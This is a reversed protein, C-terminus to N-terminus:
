RYRKSNNIVKLMAVYSEAMNKAVKAINIPKVKYEKKITPPKGKFKYYLREYTDEDTEHSMKAGV